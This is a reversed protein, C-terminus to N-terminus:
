SQHENYINGKPCLSEVHGRGNEVFATRISIQGRPKDNYRPKGKTQDGLLSTNAHEALVQTERLQM